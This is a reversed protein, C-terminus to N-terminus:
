QVGHCWCSSGFRASLNPDLLNGSTFSGHVDTHCTMCDMNAYQGSHATQHTPVVHCQRCVLNEPQRLLHDNASGHPTHCEVCGDGDVSHSSMPGHEYLFPGAVQPHCSQCVRNLGLEVPLDNRRAFQHCSLCTMAGQLVPHNTAKHFDARTTEHCPMCFEARDDLLLDKHGGHVKHCSNCNLRLSTHPDFGFDDMERHNVHCTGCLTSVSDNPLRGPNGINEASPDEVHVAANSHCSRCAVTTAPSKMQSSLRHATATLTSDLGSHCGICTEDDPGAMAPAEQALVPLGFVCVLGCIILLLRLGRSNM